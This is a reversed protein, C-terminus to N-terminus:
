IVLPDGGHGENEKMGGDARFFDCIWRAVHVGFDVKLLDAQPFKEDRLPRFGFPPM